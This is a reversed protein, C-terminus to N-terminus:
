QPPDLDETSISLAFPAIGGRSYSEWGNDHAEVCGGEDAAVACSEHHARSKTFAGLRGDGVAPALISVWGRGNSVSCHCVTPVRNNRAITDGM